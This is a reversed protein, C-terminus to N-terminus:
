LDPYLLDGSVKQQKLVNVAM